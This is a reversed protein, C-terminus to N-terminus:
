PEELPAPPKWSPPMPAPETGWFPSSTLYRLADFVEHAESTSAGTRIKFESEDGFAEMAEHLCGRLVELEARTMVITAEDDTGERRAAKM